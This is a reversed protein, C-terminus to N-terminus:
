EWDMAPYSCRRPTRRIFLTQAPDSISLISHSTQDDAQAMAVFAVALVMAFLPENVSRVM